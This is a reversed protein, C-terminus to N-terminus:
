IQLAPEASMTRLMEAAPAQQAQAEESDRGEEPVAQPQGTQDALLHMVSDIERRIWDVSYIIGTRAIKVKLSELKSFVQQLDAGSGLPLVGQQAALHGLKGEYESLVREAGRVAEHVAQRSIGHQRAIESFTLNDIAYSQMMAHQRETLLSGFRTLLHRLREREAARTLTGAVKAM